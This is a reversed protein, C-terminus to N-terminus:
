PKTERPEDAVAPRYADYARRLHGCIPCDGETVGGNCAYCDTLTAYVEALLKALLQDTPAAATGEVGQYFSETKRDNAAIREVAALALALRVAYVVAVREPLSWDRHAEKGAVPRLADTAERLRAGAADARVADGCQGCYDPKDDAEVCAPFACKRTLRENEARTDALERELAAVHELVSDIRSAWDNAYRGGDPVNFESAYRERITTIHDSVV